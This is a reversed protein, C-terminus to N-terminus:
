GRNNRAPDTARLRTLLAMELTLTFLYFAIVWLWFRQFGFAPVAFYLVMGGGIVFLMRLSTGGFVALVQQHPEGRLSLQAWVLTVVSPVLCLAAASASFM